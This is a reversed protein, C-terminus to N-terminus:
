WRRLAGLGIVERRHQYSEVLRPALWFATAALILGAFVDVLYHWRLVITALIINVTFFTAIPAYRRYHRWAFLTLFTPLATHISPFIDRLPGAASVANVVLQYFTGGQLPARYEHALHAYPGLGPVLTYVFQGTTVVLLAGTAFTALRHDNRSTFMMVFIFSSIFYFYSYYFFSFWEVVRPSSWAEVALTPEVTFLRVDLQYLAEDYSSSNIIPLIPRLNLYM